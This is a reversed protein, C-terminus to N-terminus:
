IWHTLGVPMEINGRRVGEIYDPGRLVDSIPPPGFCFRGREEEEEAAPGTEAPRAGPSANRTGVDGTM